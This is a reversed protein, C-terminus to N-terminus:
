LAEVYCTSATVNCAGSSSAGDALYQAIAGCNAGFPLPPILVANAQWMMSPIDPLSTCSGGIPVRGMRVIIHNSAYVALHVFMNSHGCASFLPSTWACWFVNGSVDWAQCPLLDLFYVGNVASCTGCSGPSTVGAITVKIVGPPQGDCRPRCTPHCAPCSVRDGGQAYGYEVVAAEVTAGSFAGVRIGAAGHLGSSASYYSANTGGSTHTVTATFVGTGSYCFNVLAGSGNGGSVSARVTEVGGSREVIRVVNPTGPAGKLEAEAAWYNDNDIYKLIARVTASSGAPQNFAISVRDAAHIGDTTDTLVVTCHPSAFQIHYPPASFSVGSGDAVTLGCGSGACIRCDDNCACGGAASCGPSNKKWAM